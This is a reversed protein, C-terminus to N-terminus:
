AKTPLTLHTYSVAQVRTHPDVARARGAVAVRLVKGAVVRAARVGRAAVAEGLRRAAVMVRLLSGHHGLGCPQRYATM